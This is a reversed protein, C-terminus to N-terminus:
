HPIWPPTAASPPRTQVARSSRRLDWRKRRCRHLAQWSRSTSYNRDPRCAASIAPHSALRATTASSRCPYHYTLYSAASTEYCSVLQTHPLSRNFALHFTSGPQLERRSQDRCKAWNTGNLPKLSSIRIRRDAAGSVRNRQPGEAAPPGDFGRGRARRPLSPGGLRPADIVGERGGYMCAAQRM